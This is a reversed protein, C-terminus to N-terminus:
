GKTQKIILIDSIKKIKIPFPFGLFYSGKEKIEIVNSAIKRIKVKSPIRVRIKKRNMLKLISYFIECANTNLLDFYGRNIEEVLGLEKKMKDLIKLAEKKSKHKVEIELFTGLTKVKDIAVEVKGKRFLERTKEVKGMPLYGLLRFFEIMKELNENVAFEIEERIRELKTDLTPKGKVGIIVEKTSPKYRIRMWSKILYNYIHNLPIDVIKEKNVLRFGLKRIKQKVKSLESDKIRFKMEMEKTVKGM